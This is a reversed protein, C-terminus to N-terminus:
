LHDAEVQDADEVGLHEAHGVRSGLTEVGLDLFDLAHGAPVAVTVAETICDVEM